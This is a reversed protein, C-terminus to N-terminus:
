LDSNGHSVILGVPRGKLKNFTVENYDAFADESDGTRSKDDLKM